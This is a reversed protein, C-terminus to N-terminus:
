AVVSVILHILQPFLSIVVILRIIQLIILDPSQVGLDSSILTMDSAGAPTAALMSIILNMGFRRHLIHGVVYCTTFLIIILALAPLIVFRLEIVDKYAMSSGIYAGSLAQTLRKTWLPMCTQSVLLKMSIVGVMSFLLVGAPVNLLQGILGFATAIALTTIFVHAPQADVTQLPPTEVPKDQLTVSNNRSHHRDVYAILTPFLGVGTVMRIFQLVAVKPVDAGMDASIIPIDTLGGPVGSMLSTVLDLPSLLYIAFGILLNQILMGTLLVIAPKILLRMRQLDNKEVTCGIYAGAAVQAATKAFHPMSATGFFINLAAVGIIAGIMMGGPVKLKFAITGFVLCVALTMLFHTM